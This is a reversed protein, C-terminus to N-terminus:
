YFELAPWFPTSAVRGPPFFPWPGLVCLVSVVCGGMAMLMKRWLLFSWGCNRPCRGAALHAPQHSVSQALHICITTAFDCVCIMIRRHTNPISCVGLANCIVNGDCLLTQVSTHVNQCCCFVIVGFRCFFPRSAADCESM